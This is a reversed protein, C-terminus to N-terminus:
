SKGDSKSYVKGMSEIRQQIQKRFKKPKLVEAQDGYGLIWWGIETLGEVDVHFDLTGDKNWHLKQTKHWHVEAVNQAVLPQFRIAVNHREDTERILSWANGLYRSLRFSKPVKYKTGLREVSVIRGMNFTRVELHTQSRGIVYWSRHKFLIHYPCLRIDQPESELPRRYRIQVQQREMLAETLRRYTVHSDGLTNHPSLHVSVAPRMENMRSQVHSPLNGLLKAAATRAAEQFPVGHTQDALEECLVLLSFTEELTFESTPFVTEPGLRYGSDDDSREILIGFEALTKIDRFVTRRSVHCAEALQASNYTRGSQLLHIIELLRHLRDGSAM